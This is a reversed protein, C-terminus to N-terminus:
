FEPPAPEQELLQMLEEKRKIAAAQYMDVTRAKTEDDLTDFALFCSPVGDLLRVIGYPHIQAEAKDRDRGAFYTDAFCDWIQAADKAPFGMIRTYVDAPLLPPLLKLTYYLFALDYVPHGLKVDEMDIMVPKKDEIMLNGFNIDGHVFCLRDPLKMLFDTVAKKEEESYIGELEETKKVWETKLDPFDGKQFTTMHMHRIYAAYIGIYEALRSRDEELLSKVSKARLIEYVLSYGGNV